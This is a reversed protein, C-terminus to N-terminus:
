NLLISLNMSASFFQNANQNARPDAEFNCFFLPLFNFILLETFFFM